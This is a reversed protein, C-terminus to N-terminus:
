MKEINSSVRFRLRGQEHEGHRRGGSHHIRWGPHVSHGSVRGEAWLRVGDSLELRPCPLPYWCRCQGSTSPEAWPRLCLLLFCISPYIFDIGVHYLEDNMQTEGATLVHGMIVESVEEPSVGARKLVDKIVVSCLVRLPVTSLVGNLSGPFLPSFSDNM